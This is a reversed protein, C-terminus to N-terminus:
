LFISLIVLILAFGWYSTWFYNYLKRNGPRGLIKTPPWYYWKKKTKDKDGIITKILHLMFDYAIMIAVIYLLEIM